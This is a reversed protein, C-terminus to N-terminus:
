FTAQAVQILLWGVVAYVVGVRIVKRRRLESFFQRTGRADSMTLQWRHSVAFCLREIPRYALRFNIVNERADATTCRAPGRSRGHKGDRTEPPASRRVSRGPM